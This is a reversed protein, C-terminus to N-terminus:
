HTGPNVMTVLWDASTYASLATGGTFSLVLRPLSAPTGGGNYIFYVTLQQLTSTSSPAPSPVQVSVSSNGFLFGPYAGLGGAPSAVITGAGVTATGLAYYDLRWVSKVPISLPFSITAAAATMGILDAGTNTSLPVVSPTVGILTPDIQYHAYPMLYGPPQEIAKFFTIDYSVWLEGINVNTGQLGSTAIYMKGLDYLRIDTNAPNAFARVYQESVSTQSRACEIAHIMSCSPKSSVGFETNELQQKSTFAADASDYDTAMTVSGLATNVSNLADASMTRFEYVMGNIRYQQFTSGCVQSLWPFSASLGPNISFSQITFTNATSASIIDGLFERHRIRVTNKSGAFSPIQSDNVITNWKVSDSSSVYDGSGFIKGIYHAYSGIKGGIASGIPGAIGRGALSGLARGIKGWPGPKSYTYAGRGRLRGYTRRPFYSRRRYLPRRRYYRSRAYVRKRRPAVASPVQTVMAM